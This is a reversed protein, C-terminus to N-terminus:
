DKIILVDLDYSRHFRLPRSIQLLYRPGRFDRVRRDVASNRLKLTFSEQIGPDMWVKGPDPKRM